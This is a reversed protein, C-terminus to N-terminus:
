QNSYAYWCVYWICDANKTKQKAQKKWHKLKKRINSYEIFAKLSNSYKLGLIKRKNIWLQCKAEYLDKAYLDIKDTDAEHNILNLLANRKGYGSNGM